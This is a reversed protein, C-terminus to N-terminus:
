RMHHSMAPCASMPWVPVIRESTTTAAVVVDGQLRLGAAIGLTEAILAVYFKQAMRTSTSGTAAFCDDTCEAARAEWDILIVNGRANAGGPGLARLMENIRDKGEIDGKVTLVVVNPVAALADMFQNLSDQGMVGNTGLHVVVAVGLM